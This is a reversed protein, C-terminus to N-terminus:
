CVSSNSYIIGSSAEDNDRWGMSSVSTVVNMCGSDGQLNIDYYWEADRAASRNAWSSAMDNFAYDTFNKWTPSNGLFLRKGNFNVDAWM